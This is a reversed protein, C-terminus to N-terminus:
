QLNVQLVDILRDIETETNYAHLSVRVYDDGERTRSQCQDGTRVFINEADLVFALDSTGAQEFRFSVIGFGRRCGCRDVGPSFEIGPLLKLREYLYRTLESVRRDIERLGISEIFEIAALMSLIAPINQTGAELMAAASSYSVSLVGSELASMGGGVTVPAMSRLLSKRVYLVGVGNGAFMKHGSFSLFDVNLSRVNVPRHGVSQSADLSILVKSGAIKRIERVEMDLGYVHHVHTVAILRTRETIGERISKLEYDGEYHLRIPVIKIDVGFRRLIAQLNFWPLVTSKHDDLCVMIEDGSKLNKLGWSQAVLNLSETAGSTFCISEPRTGIFRAVRARTEEIRAALRTSSSYSARGANACDRRYFDTFCDIVTQPKQTTSANDLFLFDPKESFIPFRARVVATDFAPPAALCTTVPTASHLEPRTNNNVM